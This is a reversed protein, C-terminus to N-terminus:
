ATCAALQGSVHMLGRTSAFRMVASVDVTRFANDIVTVALAQHADFVLEREGDLAVAGAALTPTFPIGAPMRRWNEVGVPEVLGPGIPAHVVTPALAPPALRVMMGGPEDRAIPELLGAIAALGIVEPDAFTVFLERITESRWIARAGLYRDTVLAVDVLAIEPTGGDLAVEIKKNFSYAIEKPIKGAAALGAALGTITPERHLPFANNTGTSIGAIPVTGCETVVARHTGDGGLVVIVAVAAASMLRAARRTDEVTGSVPMELFSLRPFRTEGCRRSHEIGRMVYSRIGGIDPMMVVDTVGAAALAALARLVINARDAIQLSSANAVVRRIDRASVPNAIIGVLPSQM